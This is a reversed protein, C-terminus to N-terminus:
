SMGVLKLVDAKQIRWDGRSNIRYAPLDGRKIMRKVTLKSIRLIQAAEGIKLVDSFKSIPKNSM